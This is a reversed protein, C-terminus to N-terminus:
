QAAASLPLTFTFRAGAGPVNEATMEGGHAHIISMCVSLGIGMNRSDDSHVFYGEFLRPLDEPAIGQGNDTIMFVAQADRSRLTVDACTTTKGHLAANELVNIIVQEILTADMPIFLMEDPVSVRVRIEPFRKKFKRVSEDIIEEGLEPETKLHTAQSDIRTISLLNEVIRILWQADDRVGVLLERKKEPSLTDENELVANTSGIISTLPTRLDHSVARLLNARMKEQQTEAHMKEAQKIRTTMACTLISSALMITFCLPYGSMTFNLKLYPYTFVYNAVITGLLSAAFGYFYGDTCRSIVLVAFVFILPVHSDEGVFVLQLVLCLLCAAAFVGLTLFTDRTSLPFHTRFFSDNKRSTTKM